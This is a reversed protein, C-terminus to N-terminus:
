NSWEHVNEMGTDTVRHLKYLLSCHRLYNDGCLGFWEPTDKKPSAPLVGKYLSLRVPLQPSSASGRRSPRSNASIRKIPRVLMQQALLQWSM